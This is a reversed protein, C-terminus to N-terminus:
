PLFVFYRFNMCLQAYSYYIYRFPVYTRLFLSLKSQLTWNQVKVICVFILCVKTKLCVRHQQQSMLSDYSEFLMWSAHHQHHSFVKVFKVCILYLLLFCVINACKGVHLTSKSSDFHAFSCYSVLVVSLTREFLEFLFGEVPLSEKFAFFM